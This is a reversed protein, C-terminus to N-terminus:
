ALESKAEQTMNPPSCLHSYPIDGQLVESTEEGRKLGKFYKIDSRCIDYWTMVSLHGNCGEVLTRLKKQIPLLPQAPDNLVFYQTMDAVGHGAMYVQLFVRKQDKALGTFRATASMFISRIDDKTTKNFKRINEDPIGFCKAAHTAKEADDLTYPLDALKHCGELNRIASYDEEYFIWCEKLAFNTENIPNQSELEALKREVRGLLGTPINYQKWQSDKLHKLDEVSDIFDEELATVYKEITAYERKMDIAIEQFLQKVTM